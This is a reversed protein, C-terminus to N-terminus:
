PREEKAARLACEPEDTFCEPPLRTWVCELVFAIWKRCSDANRGTAHDVMNEIGSRRGIQGLNADYLRDFQEVLERNKACEIVCEEFTM